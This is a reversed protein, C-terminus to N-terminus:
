FDNEVRSFALPQSPHKRFGALFARLLLATRAKRSVAACGHFWYPNKVTLEARYEPIDLKTAFRQIGEHWPADAIRMRRWQWHAVTGAPFAIVCEMRKWSRCIALLAYHNQSTPSSLKKIPIIRDALVPVAYLIDNSVIRIDKRRSLLASLLLVGDLIGTPHNSTVLLAGEKPICRATAHIQAVDIGYDSLVRDACASLGEVTPLTRYYDEIARLGLLQAVVETAGRRSRLDLLGAAPRARPPDLVM